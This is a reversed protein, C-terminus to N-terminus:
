WTKTVKTKARLDRQVAFLVVLVALDHVGKISDLDSQHRAAGSLQVATFPSCSGSSFADVGCSDQIILTVQAPLCGQCTVQDLSAGSPDLHAQAQITISDAEHVTHNRNESPNNSQAQPKICGNVTHKLWQNISKQGWKVKAENNVKHSYAGLEHEKTESQVIRVLNQVGPQAQFSWEGRWDQRRQKLMNDEEEKGSTNCMDKDGDGIADGLGHDQQEAGVKSVVVLLSM